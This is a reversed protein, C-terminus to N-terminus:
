FNKKEQCFFLIFICFAIIKRKAYNNEFHNNIIQLLGINM